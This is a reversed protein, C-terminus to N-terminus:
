TGTGGALYIMFTDHRCHQPAASTCPTTPPTKTFDGLNGLWNSSWVVWKHDPSFATMVGWGYQGAQSNYNGAATYNHAFRYLTMTNKSLDDARYVIMEGEYPMTVNMSSKPPAYLAGNVNFFGL